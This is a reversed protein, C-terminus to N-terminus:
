NAKTEAKKRRPRGVKPKQSMALVKAVIAAEVDNLERFKAISDPTLDRYAAVAADIRDNNYEM